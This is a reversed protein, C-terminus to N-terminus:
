EKRNELNCFNEIVCIRAEEAKSQPVTLITKLLTLATQTRGTNSNLVTLITQTSDTNNKLVTLVTQTSITINRFIM